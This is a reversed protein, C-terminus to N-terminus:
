SKAREIFEGEDVPDPQPPIRLAPESPEIDKVDPEATHTPVVQCLAGDEPRRTILTYPRRLALKMAAWVAYASVACMGLLGLTLALALAAVAISLNGNIGDM